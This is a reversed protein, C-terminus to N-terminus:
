DNDYILPTLEIMKDYHSNIMEPAHTAFILQINKDLSLIQDIYMRQWSLHLSLEPEDVIFISSEKDEFNFLLNAFFIIIQKEGSSLLGIDYKKENKILEFSLKANDIIIKKPVSTSIFFNNVIDIFKNIRKNVNMRSVDMEESLEIIDNVRKMRESAIITAIIAQEPPYNNFNSYINLNEFFKMEKDKEEKSSKIEMKDIVSLYKKQVETIDKASFALEKHIDSFKKELSPSIDIDVISKFINNRFVNTIHDIKISNNVIEESILKQVIDINSTTSKEKISLRNSPRRGHQFELKANKPLRDIPLYTQKFINKIINSIFTLDNDNKESFKNIGAVRIIREDSNIIRNFLPISYEQNNLLIAMDHEKYYIRIEEVNDINSSSNFYKLIIEDFEFDSLKLLDGTIIISLIDLITTKGSGNDGFLFTVDSNFMLDYTYMNHLNYIQLQKIKM